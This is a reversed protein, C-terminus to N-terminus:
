NYVQKLLQVNTLELTDNIRQLYRKIKREDGLIPAFELSHAM